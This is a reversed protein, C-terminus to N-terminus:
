PGRLPRARARAPVRLRGIDRAPLRPRGWRAAGPRLLRDGAASARPGGGSAATRPAATRWRRPTPRGLGRNPVAVAHLAAGPPRLLLPVGRRAGANVRRLLAAAGGRRGGRLWRPAGACV